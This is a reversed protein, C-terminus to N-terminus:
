RATNEDKIENKELPPGNFDQPRHETGLLFSYEHTQVILPKEPEAVKGTICGALMLIVAVIILIKKM